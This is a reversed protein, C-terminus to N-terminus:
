RARTIFVFPSEMVRIDGGWSERGPVLQCCLFRSLNRLNGRAKVEYTMKSIIREGPVLGGQEGLM